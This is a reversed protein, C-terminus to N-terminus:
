EPFPLEATHHFSEDEIEIMAPTIKLVRYTKDFVDGEHVVYVQQQDALYAEMPGQDKVSYGVAKFPVPPPPPPGPPAANAVEAAQRARLSAQIQQPTPAFSFPDRDPATLPTSELAQYAVLNLAPSEPLAQTAPTRPIVRVRSVEPRARPPTQDAAVADVARMRFALRLFLAVCVLGLLITVTTELRKKQKM